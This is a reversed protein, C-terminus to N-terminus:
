PLRRVVLNGLTSNDTIRRRETNPRQVWVDLRAPGAPLQFVASQEEAILPKSSVNGNISVYMVTAGIDDGRDITLEYPGARVIFVSWTTPKGDVYTSDQYRCLISPNERDSGLRIVGPTFNRTGRVDAIWRDYAKRLRAAVEPFQSAVDDQEGPDALLDYLEAPPDKPLEIREDGFTTPAFLLKYRGTRVAANHYRQPSLGRHVQFFLTRDPWANTEGRVLPLLNVGDLSVDAPPKVGCAALVTPAIDIHAAIHDIRGPGNLVAPWQMFCPVRIGGEYVNGKKGRLGANFRRQQPGNDSLFVVLTNQRLDLQELIQLLRGFNEDINQVMGYIRATKEDLGMAKYPQVYRDAVTLPTHPANTPLYVFFPRQRNAKVFEIAANFFVDTCYGKAHFEQGNHWLLPDFYDNPRDPTQGIGGGKHVLSEDFGQDMPRMPYNDGLHWKGFIGTAYGASKLMEALTTEDGHMKAGGRSTHIVGTRYFYRGTLLSARTPACVPSCYFNRLEVGETAFRDLNPTKIKDNGHFGVDGYGQDDTLVVIVNPKDAAPVEDCILLSTLLLLPTTARTV